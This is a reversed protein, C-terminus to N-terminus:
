KQLRSQTFQHNTAMLRRQGYGQLGIAAAQHLWKRGTTFKGKNEHRKDHVRVTAGKARQNLYRNWLSPIDLLFM